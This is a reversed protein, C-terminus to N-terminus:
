EDSVGAALKKPDFTPPMVGNVIQRFDAERSKPYISYIVGDYTSHKIGDIVRDVTNKPDYLKLLPLITDADFSRTGLKSSVLKQVVLEDVSLDTRVPRWKSVQIDGGYSFYVEWYDEKKSIAITVLVNVPHYESGSRYGGGIGSYYVGEKTVRGIGRFEHLDYLPPLYCRFQWIKDLQNAVEAPVEPKEIEVFYARNLDEMKMLGLEAELQELEARFNQNESFLRGWYLLAIVLCILVRSNFALTTRTTKKM